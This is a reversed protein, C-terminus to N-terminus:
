LLGIFVTAMAVVPLLSTADGAFLMEQTCGEKQGGGYDDNEVPDFPPQDNELASSYNASEEDAFEVKKSSAVFASPTTVPPPFNTNTTTGSIMIQIKTERNSFNNNRPSYLNITGTPHQSPVTIEETSFYPSIANGKACNRPHNDKRNENNINEIEDATLPNLQRPVLKPYQGSGPTAATNDQNMQLQEVCKGYAFAKAQEDSDFIGKGTEGLKTGVMKNTGLPETIGDPYNVVADYTYVLNMRDMRSNQNSGETAANLGQGVAQDGRYPGGEADNCGRRPNYDSGTWQFQLVTNPLDAQDIKIRNPIFDYEVAPYAQVINGRKGRVNVNLMVKNANKAATPKVYFLYSRDQFTRAVQNTNLALQVYDTDTSGIKVLPDQQIPSEVAAQGNRANKQNASSNLSRAYDSSSMNYRLRLICPEPKGNKTVDPVTMSYRTATDEVGSNGLHNARSWDLVGCEPGAEAMAVVNQNQALQFGTTFPTAKWEYAAGLEACKAVTAPWERRNFLRQAEGTLGNATKPIKGAVNQGVAAKPVCQGNWNADTKLKAPDKYGQANGVWDGKGTQAEANNVGCRDEPTSGLGGCMKGLSAFQAAGAEAVGCRAPDDVLYAVDVFPSPRWYPYYDREEPCELGRRGGNPNQRTGIASRRNVNQDATFLGRNRQVRNCANYYEPTEHVSYRLNQGGNAGAAQGPDATNIRNTASDGNNAPIGERPAAARTITPQDTYMQGLEAAPDTTQSCLMQITMECHVSQQTNEKAVEQERKYGCGHQATWEVELKSGAEYVMEPTLGMPPFNADSGSVARPCAYGGKANNQSDFLRNGNNRNVNRECNRDNNGRPNHM